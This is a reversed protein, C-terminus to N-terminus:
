LEHKRAWQSLSIYRDPKRLDDMGTTQREGHLISAIM